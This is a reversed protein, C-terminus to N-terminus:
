KDLFTRYENLNSFKACVYHIDKQPYNPVYSPAIQELVGLFNFLTSFFYELFEGQCNANSM